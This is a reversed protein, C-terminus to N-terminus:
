PLVNRKNQIIKTRYKDLDINSINEIFSDLKELSLINKSHENYIDIEKLNKNTKIKKINKSYDIKYKKDIYENTMIYSYYLDRAFNYDSVEQLYKKDLFNNFFLYDTILHLFIGKQYDTNINNIKLYEYLLVKNKLDKIVNDGEEIGYHSKVKDKALDVDIVGNYFEDINKISKQKEIYRKAIALHISFSAM